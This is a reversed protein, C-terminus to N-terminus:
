IQTAAFSRSVTRRRCTAVIRGSPYEGTASPRLKSHTRLQVPINIVVMKNQRIFSCLTGYSRINNRSERAGKQTKNTSLFRFDAKKTRGGSKHSLNGVKTEPPRPNYDYLCRFLKKWARCYIGNDNIGRIFFPGFTADSKRDM